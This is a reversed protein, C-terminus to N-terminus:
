DRVSGVYPLEINNKELVNEYHTLFDVFRDKLDDAIDQVAELDGSEPEECLEEIDSLLGRLTDGQILVGPYNRGLHRAIVANTASSFLEFEQMESM